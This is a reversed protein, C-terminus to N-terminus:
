KIKIGHEHLSSYKNQKPACSYSHWQRISLRMFSSYDLRLSFIINHLILTLIYYEFVYVIMKLVSNM